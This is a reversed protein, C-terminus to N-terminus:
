LELNPSFHRSLRGDQSLFSASFKRRLNLLYRAQYEPAFPSTGSMWDKVEELIYAAKERLVLVLTSVGNQPDFAHWEV